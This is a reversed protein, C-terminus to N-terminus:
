SLSWGDSMLLLTMYCFRTIDPVVGSFKFLRDNFVHSHAAELVTVKKKPRGTYVEREWEIELAIYGITVLVDVCVVVQRGTSHQYMQGSTEAQLKKM